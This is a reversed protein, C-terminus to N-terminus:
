PTCVGGVTHAPGDDAAVSNEMHPVTIFTSANAANGHDDIVELFATYVRGNGSGQRESRLDVSLCDDAIVIDDDTNGDADSNDPEDSSVM